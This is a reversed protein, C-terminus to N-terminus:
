VLRKKLQEYCTTTILFHPIARALGMSGGRYLSLMGHQKVLKLGERLTSTSNNTSNMVMSKCLDVPYVVGTVVCTTMLSAVTTRLALNDALIGNQAELKEQLTFYTPLQIGSVLMSRQVTQNIGRYFGRLGRRHHIYWVVQSLTRRQSEPRAAQGQLRTKVVDFPMATLNGLLGCAGGMVMKEAFSSLGSKSETGKSEAGWRLEKLYGFLGLRVGTYLMQRSLSPIWARSLGRVGQAGIIQQFSNRVTLKNDPHSQIHVKLTDVPLTLMEAMGSSLCSLGLHKALSINETSHTKSM